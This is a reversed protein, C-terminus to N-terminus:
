LVKKTLKELATLNRHVEAVDRVKLKLPCNMNSGGGLVVHLMKSLHTLCEM